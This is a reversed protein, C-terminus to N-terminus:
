VGVTRRNREGCEIPEMPPCQDVILLFSFIEKWVDSPVTESIQSCEEDLYAKADSILEKSDQIFNLLEHRSFASFYSRIEQYREM